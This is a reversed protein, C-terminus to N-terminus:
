SDPSHVWLRYESKEVSFKRACHKKCTKIISLMWQNTKFSNIQHSIITKTQQYIYYPFHDTKIWEKRFIAKRFIAINKSTFHRFAERFDLYKWITELIRVLFLLPFTRKLLRSFSSLKWRSSIKHVGRHM